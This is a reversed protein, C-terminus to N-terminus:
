RYAELVTELTLAYGSIEYFYLTILRVKESDPLHAPIPALVPRGVAPPPPCLEFKPPCHHCSTGLFLVITGLFLVAAKM